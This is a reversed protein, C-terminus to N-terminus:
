LFKLNKYGNQEMLSIKVITGRKYNLMENLLDQLYSTSVYINLTISKEGEIKVQIQNTQGKKTFFKTIIGELFLPTEETGYVSFVGNKIDVFM